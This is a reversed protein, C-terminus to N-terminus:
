ISFGHLNTKFVSSAAPTFGNSTVLYGWLTLNPASFQANIMDARVYLTSGIDVPAGIIVYGAYYPRDGAPLDWATGDAFASPPTQTYLQVTFSGAGSPIAAVDWELEASTIYIENGSTTDVIFQVAASASASSGIVSGAPYPTTNAPRTITPM